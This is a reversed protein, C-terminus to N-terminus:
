IDFRVGVGVNHARYHAAKGFTKNDLDKLKKTKGMDRYSYALEATVGETVEYSAGLYGAFAANYKQKVKESEPLVGNITSTLKAKVQSMGVGAGVFVKFMDAEFIDVFGNLMLTNIEGKLKGTIKDGDADTFTKKHQVNIFHDFALEARVNDMVYYGAGVGFFGANKSKLSETDAIKTKSFMSAGANAKVYFTEAEAGFASSTALIATAATTLLIKKM